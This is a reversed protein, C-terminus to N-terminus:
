EKMRFRSRLFCRGLHGERGRWDEIRLAGGRWRCERLLSLQELSELSLRNRLLTLDNATEEFIILLISLIIVQRSKM